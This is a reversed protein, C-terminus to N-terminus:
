AKYSYNYFSILILLRVVQDIKQLVTTKESMQACMKAFTEFLATQDLAAPREEKTVRTLNLVRENFCLFTKFM